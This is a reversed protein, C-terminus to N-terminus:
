VTDHVFKLDHLDSLVERFISVFIPLCIIYREIKKLTWIQSELYNSIHMPSQKRYEKRMQTKNKPVKEQLYDVDRLNGEKKKKFEPIEFVRKAM